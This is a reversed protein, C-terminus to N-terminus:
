KGSDRNELHSEVQKASGTEAETDHDTALGGLGNTQVALPDSEGYQRIRPTILFLREYERGSISQKRFLWGLGPVDGLCPVIQRTNQSSDKLYGGILLSENHGVVAQTNVISKKVVPISDVEKELVDSDEIQIALKVLSQDKEEIIHPTVRLVVGANIDYLDVEYNGQLRVYFTESHELQAETNNLTLVSPRSLIKAHGKEELAYVKALFYNSADGIITALNLGGGTPLQLGADNSYLSSTNSGGKTVQKGDESSGAFEWQIGLDELNDRDVEMITAKIEVLGVPVDLLEIIQQYYPMKEEHDRVVVANQRADAEIIGLKMNMSVPKDEVTVDEETIDAADKYGELASETSPPQKQDYTAALGQGKLKKLSKMLSKKEVQVVEGPSKNGAILDRLLTAVGTLTTQRDRFVITKDDAWAYKLPFIKVIDDSIRQEMAKADLQLALQSVLEVYRPPGALYLIHEKEIMRMAYKPDLIDLDNLDQELKQKGVYNLNVVQSAMENASYIYVAAGDYYWILNYADTIYRFFRQPSQGEFNGSIIGNVKESFVIGIGQIAFLDTVVDKIDAKEAFHSYPKATWKIEAAYSTNDSQTVFFIMFCFLGCKVWKWKKYTTVPM